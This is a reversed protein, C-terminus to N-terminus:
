RCNIAISMMAGRFFAEGGIAADVDPPGDEAEDQSPKTDSRLQCM